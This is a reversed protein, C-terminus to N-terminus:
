SSGLIRGKKFNDISDKSFNSFIYDSVKCNLKPIIFDSEIDSIPILVFLRKLAEKHPIQLKESNLVLSGFFIIDIDLTRSTWKPHKQPRGCAIEIEKCTSHLKEVSENWYGSIAFNIFDPTGQPCGFPPNKYFHSIKIQKLGSSKLSEIALSFNKKIEGVNAGISLVAKSANKEKFKM